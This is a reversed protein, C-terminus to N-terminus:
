SLVAKVVTERTVTLEGRKVTVIQYKGECCNDVDALWREADETSEFELRNKTEDTVDEWFIADPMSSMGRKQQIICPFKQRTSRPNGAEAMGHHTVDISQIPEAPQTKAM